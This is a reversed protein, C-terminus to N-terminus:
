TLEMRRSDLLLYPAHSWFTEHVPPLTAWELGINAQTPCNLAPCLEGFEM